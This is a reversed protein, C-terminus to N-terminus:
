ESADGGAERLSQAVQLALRRTSALVYKLEAGSPKRLMEALYQETIRDGALDCAYAGARLAIHMGPVADHPFQGRHEFVVHIKEGNALRAMMPNGALTYLRLQDSRPLGTLWKTFSAPITTFHARNQAYFCMTCKGPPLRQPGALKVPARYECRLEGRRDSRWEGVMLFSGKECGIYIRERSDHVLSFLIRPPPKPAFFVAASCWNEMDRELLDSGDIMDVIAVLRQENALDLDPDEWLSEEGLVRVQGPLRELLYESCQNEAQKDVFLMEKVRARKRGRKAYMRVRQLAKDPQVRLTQRVGERVAILADIATNLPEDTPPFPYANPM